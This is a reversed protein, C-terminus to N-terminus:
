ARSRGKRRESRAASARETLSTPLGLQERWRKELRAMRAGDSEHDYGMLHLVGHLVLIEVEQELRLGYRRANRQATEASIVIDGLYARGNAQGSAFSLVDTPENRQRYQRNYRCIARDSVLCVSFGSQQLRSQLLGLFRRVKDWDGRVSRQRNVLLPPM